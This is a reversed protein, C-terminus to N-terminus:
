YNFYVLYYPKSVLERKKIHSINILANNELFLGLDDYEKFSYNLVGMVLDSITKNLITDLLTTYIKLNLSEKDVYEEPLGLSSEGIVYIANVEVSSRPMLHKHQYLALALYEDSTYNLLGKTGSFYHKEIIKDSYFSYQKPLRRFYSNIENSILDLRPIGKNDFHRNAVKLKINQSSIFTIIYFEKLKYVRTSSLDVVM